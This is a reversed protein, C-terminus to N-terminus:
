FEIGFDISKLTLHKRRCSAFYRLIVSFNRELSYIGISRREQASKHLTKCNTRTNAM